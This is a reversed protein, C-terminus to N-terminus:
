PKILKAMVISAAVILMAAVVFPWPSWEQTCFEGGNSTFECVDGPGGRNLWALYLAPVAVGALTAVASRNRLAPALIGIIALGSALPLFLVGVTLLAAIGLGLLAGVLLWWGYMWIAPRDKTPPSAVGFADTM